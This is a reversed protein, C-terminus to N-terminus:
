QNKLFAPLQYRLSAYQWLATYHALQAGEVVM